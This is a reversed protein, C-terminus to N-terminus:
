REQRGFLGAPKVVLIAILVIFAVVGGFASPLYLGSVAEVVGLIIGGALAGAMSGLGGLVIIVLGKITLSLGVSPVLTHTLAYLTGAIGAAAVCIGFTLYAIKKFDVGMMMAMERDQTCARMARGIETRFLIYSFTLAVAISVVFVSLRPISITVGFLAINAYSYSTILTKYQSSWAAQEATYILLALGYTVLVSAQLQYQAHKIVLAVLFKQILVGVVFLLAATLALSVYPDIGFFIFLWYSVYGGLILLDGHAVNLIGMVGFILTLGLAVVGYLSGDLIGNIVVQWIM